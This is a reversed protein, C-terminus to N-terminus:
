HPCVLGTVTEMRSSSLSVCENPLTTHHRNLIIIRFLFLGMIRVQTLSTQSSLRCYLRSAKEAVGKGASLVSSKFIDLTPTFLSDMSFSSTSSTPSSPSVSSAPRERDRSGLPLSPSSRLRDNPRVPLPLHTNSRLLTCPRPSTHPSSSAFPLSPNKLDRSAARSSQPSNSNNMYVEIAEALDRRSTTGNSSKDHKQVTETAMLSLPDSGTEIGTRKVTGTSCSVARELQPKKGDTNEEEEILRDSVHRNQKTSSLLPVDPTLGEQTGSLDLSKPRETKPLVKCPGADSTPSSIERHYYGTAFVYSFPHNRRM